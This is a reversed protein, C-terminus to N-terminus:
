EYARIHEPRMNVIEGTCLKVKHRFGFLSTKVHGVVVGTISEHKSKENIVIVKM